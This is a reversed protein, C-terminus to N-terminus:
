NKVPPDLDIVYGTGRICRVLPRGFSARARRNIFNIHTRICEDTRGEKRPNGTCAALESAPVPRPYQCCLYPLISVSNVGIKDSLGCYYISFVFLNIELGNHRIHLRDKGTYIRILDCIIEITRIDYLPRFPINDTVAYLRDLDITDFGKPVAAILPINPHLNKFERCFGVPDSLTEAYPIYAAAIRYSSFAAETEGPSCGCTNLAFKRYFADQTKIRLASDSEIVLIM